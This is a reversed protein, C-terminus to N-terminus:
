GAPPDVCTEAPYDCPLRDGNGDSTPDVGCSEPGPAPPATGGQFLHDLLGIPDTINVNGDDNVDAADGCCPPSQGGFLYNLTWVADSIETRGDCNSDGRRFSAPETTATTVTVKLQVPYVDHTHWAAGADESVDWTLDFGAGSGTNDATWAWEFTGSVAGLVVWYTTGPQLSADEATFTAAAPTSSYSAPATLAAIAPGPELGGDAHLHLAATGPSTNALLLTVSTLRYTTTADTTFAAALWRDVTAAETGSTVNALNDYLEAAPSRAPAIGAIALAAVALGALRTGARRSPIRPSM